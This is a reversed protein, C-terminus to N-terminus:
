KALQSIRQPSVYLVRAVDQKSLGSNLLRRVVQRTRDAAKRQALDAERTAEKARKVDDGLPGPIDFDISVTFDDPSIEEMIAVLDAAMRQAEATFRGQTAGVGEVQVVWWKDERHATARYTKM